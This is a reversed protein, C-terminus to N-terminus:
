LLLIIANWFVQTKSLILKLKRLPKQQLPISYEAFVTRKGLLTLILLIFLRQALDTISCHINKIEIIAM